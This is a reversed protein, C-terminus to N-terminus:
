HQGRIFPIVVNNSSTRLRLFYAGDALSHIDQQVDVGGGISAYDTTSVCQGLANLIEVHCSGSYMSLPIRLILTSGNAPNPFVSVGNSQSEGDQVDMGASEICVATGSNDGAPVFCQLSPNTVQDGITAIWAPGSPIQSGDSMGLAIAQWKAKPHQTIYSKYVSTAVIRKAMTDSDMYTSPLEESLSVPLSPIDPLATQFAQFIGVIRLVVAAATSDKGGISEHYRYGWFTANGSSPDFSFQLLGKIGAPIFSSFFTTDGLTAISTLKPSPLAAKVTTTSPAQGQSARFSNQANLPLCLVMACLMTGIAIIRFSSRRASM